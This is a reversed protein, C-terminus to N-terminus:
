VRGPMIRGVPLADGKKTFQHLPAVVSAISQIFSRYYTCLGLYSRIEVVNKPVPRVLHGWFAVEHQFLSSKKPSLKLNVKRLQQLM